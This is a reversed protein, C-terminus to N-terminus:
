GGVGVVIVFGLVKNAGPTMRVKLAGTFNSWETVRRTATSITVTNRGYYWDEYGIEAWTAGRELGLVEYADEEQRRM